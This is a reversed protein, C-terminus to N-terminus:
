EKYLRKLQRTYKLVRNSENSAVSAALNSLTDAVKVKWALGTGSDRDQILGEMYSSYDKAYNKSLLVVADVVVAPVYASLLKPNFVDPDGDELVDHLWAVDKIHPTDPFLDLSQEGVSEVHVIYPYDGYRQHMHAASALQNATIEEYNYKYRPIFVKNM